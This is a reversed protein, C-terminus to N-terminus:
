RDDGGRAEPPRTAPRSPPAAEPAAPVDSGQAAGDAPQSGDEGAARAPRQRGGREELGGAFLLWLVLVVVGVSIASDAVNFVPFWGFDIFDTVVGSGVRDILNGLAGGIVLGLALAVWVQTPRYRYWVWAAAGLVALATLIFFWRQGQLMSFAAGMNQVHTLSLLGPIVQRAQHLPLSARVAAKTVQDLVVVFAATSLLIVLSRSPM